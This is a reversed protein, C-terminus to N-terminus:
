YKLVQQTSKVSLEEKIDPQLHWSIGICHTFVQFLHIYKKTNCAFYDKTDILPFFGCCEKFFNNLSPVHFSM